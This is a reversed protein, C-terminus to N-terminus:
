AMPFFAAPSLTITRVKRTIVRNSEEPSSQVGKADAPVTAPSRGGAKIGLGKDELITTLKKCYRFIDAIQKAMKEGHERLTEIQDKLDDVAHRIEQVEETITSLSSDIDDCRRDVQTNIEKMTPPIEPEDSFDEFQQEILQAIEEDIQRNKEEIQRNKEERITREKKESMATIEDYTPEAVAINDQRHLLITAPKQKIEQVEKAPEHIGGSDAM